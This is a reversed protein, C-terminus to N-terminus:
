EAAARSFYRNLDYLGAHVPDRENMREQFWDYAGWFREDARNIGYKNLKAIYEPSGDFNALMDFLDPIDDKRVDLFYNPYAGISGPLFDITDKAPDLRNQEGFMSNVNDHWRNIVISFMNDPGNTERVRVYLVNAQTATVHRIFSTGPETLARFGDLIDQRTEFTTPMALQEDGAEYNIPDLHIEVADLLHGNVVREVFERKPDDTQYTIQTARRALVEEHVTQALAREAVYCSEHISIRAQPPLFSLFNLEGEIRLYDMYRRINAQHSVNGFVDFGAVLAYYIRELHPYDIVWLTRPLNGLAGKHVSASDFHRYITLM